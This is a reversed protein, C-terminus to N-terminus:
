IFTKWCKRAEPPTETMDLIPIGVAVFYTPKPQRRSYMDKSSLNLPVTVMLAMAKLWMKAAVALLLGHGL